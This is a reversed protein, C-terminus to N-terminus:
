PRTRLGDLRLVTLAEIVEERTAAEPFRAWWGLVQVLSGVMARAAVASNIDGRYYGHSVGELLGREQSQTLFDLAEQGPTTSLSSGSFLVAALDPFHETFAALAVMKDRVPQQSPSPSKLLEQKLRALALRLVEKLLADKDQFHLYVTGVAVEALRAIDATRTHAAGQRAFLTTAAELLRQRTSEQSRRRAGPLPQPEGQM